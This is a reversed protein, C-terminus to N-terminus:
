KIKNTSMYISPQEINIVLGSMQKELAIWDPNSDFSATTRTRLKEDSEQMLALKFRHGNQTPKLKSRSTRADLKARINAERMQSETSEECAKEQASALEASYTCLQAARSAGHLFILDLLSISDHRGNSTLKSQNIPQHQRCKAWSDASTGSKVAIKTRQKLDDDHQTRQQGWCDESEESWGEALILPLHVMAGIFAAMKQFIQLRHRKGRRLVDVALFVVPKPAFRRQFHSVENMSAKVFIVLFKLLADFWFALLLPATLKPRNNVIILIGVLHGSVAFCFEEIPVISLALVVNIDPWAAWSRILNTSFPELNCVNVTLVKMPYLILLFLISAHNAPACKMLDLRLSLRM